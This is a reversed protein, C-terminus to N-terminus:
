VARSRWFLVIRDKLWLGALLCLPAWVLLVTGLPQAAYFVAYGVFPIAGIVELSTAPLASEADDGTNADGRTTFYRIGNREEIKVIRHVIPLGADSSPNFAIVDGIQLGDTKVPRTIAISGTSITPEMSGSVVVFPRLGFFVPVVGAMVAVLVALAVALGAFAVLQWTRAIWNRSLKEPASLVPYIADSSLSSAQSSRTPVNRNMLQEEEIIGNLHM